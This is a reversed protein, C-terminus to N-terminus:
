RIRDDSGVTSGANQVALIKEYVEEANGDLELCPTMHRSMGPWGPIGWWAYMPNVPGFSITGNGNKKKTLAVDSLTRVNL